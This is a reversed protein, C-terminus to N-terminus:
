ALDQIKASTRRVESCAKHHRSAAGDQARDPQCMLIRLRRLARVRMELVEFCDSSIDLAKIHIRSELRM